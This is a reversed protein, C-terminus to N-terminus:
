LVAHNVNEVGSDAVVTPVVGPLHEGAAELV